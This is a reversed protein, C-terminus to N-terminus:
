LATCFTLNYITRAVTKKTKKKELKRNQSAPDLIKQVVSAHKPYRIFLNRWLNDSFYFIFFSFIFFFYFCPSSTYLKVIISM